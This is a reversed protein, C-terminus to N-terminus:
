APQQQRRRQADGLTPLRRCSCLWRLSRTAQECVPILPILPILPRSASRSSSMVSRATLCTRPSQM